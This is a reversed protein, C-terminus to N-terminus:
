NIIHVKPQRPLGPPPVYTVGSSPLVGSRRIGGVSQPRATGPAIVHVVSPAPNTLVVRPRKAEPIPDEEVAIANAKLWQAIPATPTEPPRVMTKYKILKKRLHENEQELKRVRESADRLDQHASLSLARVSRIYEQVAPSAAIDPPLSDDVGDVFRQANNKEVLKKLESQLVQKEEYISAVRRQSHTNMEELVKVRDQWSKAESRADLLQQAQEKNARVLTAHIRAGESPEKQSVTAIENFKLYLPHFTFVTERCAPCKKKYELAQALCVEHFCHGCPTSVVAGNEDNGLPMCCIPCDGSACSAM